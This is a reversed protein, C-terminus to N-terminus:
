VMMGEWVDWLDAAVVEGAKQADRILDVVRHSPLCLGRKMIRDLGAM